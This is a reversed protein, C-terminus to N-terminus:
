RNEGFKLDSFRSRSQSGEGFPASTSADFARTSDLDAAANVTQQVPEAVTENAAEQVPAAAETYEPASNTEDEDEDDFDPIATIQALHGKYMALLNAKFDTVQQQMKNLNHKEKELQIKTGGIIEGAKVTADALIKDANAQAEAVVQRGQKQAGILADKLAEEDKKYERVSEVLVEIKKETEEKEKQYRTMQLAIERLFDDVETPSYGPKTQEFRKNNIEKATIM